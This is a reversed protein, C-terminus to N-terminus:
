RSSRSSSSRNSRGSGTRYVRGAHGAGKAGGSAFRITLGQGAIDLPYFYNTDPLLSATLVVPGTSVTPSFFSTGSGVIPPFLAYLASVSPAFFTQSNSLLSPALTVPGAAVTAAFFQNANALLPPSLQAASIEVTAAYFTQANTFLSPTLDVAGPSVTPGFFAQGNSLLAPSLTYTLVPAFFSQGNTALPPTLTVAGPALTPNFFANSSAVLPPELTNLNSVTSAFFSSTNTLLGPALDVAGAAVTPGYFTQANSVVGPTLGVAGATLMPAYFTQTNTQLSPSLTVAGTTATPGYFAQNNTALSPALGVAGRGVTAAYFAQSNTVLSPTLTQTGGGVDTYYVTMRVHDVSVNSGIGIGASFYVDIGFSSDVVMAQTITDNGLDTPGGLPWYTDTGDPTFGANGASSGLGAFGGGLQSGSYVLPSVASVADGDQSVEVEVLIGDITAGSPIDDSTFGFNTCRLAYSLDGIGLSVTAYADDSAAANGTGSWSATEFNVLESTVTSPSNPGAPNVAIAPAHFSNTNSLLGPTLAVAGPAVTPAYFTQTNTFLAPTLTQTTVAEEAAVTLCVWQETSSTFTGPDDSSATLSREATNTSAGSAGGAGRSQLNGYNTPAVTAVTLGDGHRSCIWIRAASTGPNFNAPDSNTSDGQSSAFTSGSATALQPSTGTIKLMVASYQESGTATMSLTLTGTGSAVRSFLAGTVRNTANTIGGTDRTWLPGGSESLTNNGDSSVFVLCLDGASFSAATTISWSTSDSAASVFAERAAVALAM